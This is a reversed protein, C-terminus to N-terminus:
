PRSLTHEIQRGIWGDMRGAENEKEDGKVKERSCCFPALAASSANDVKILSASPPSQRQIWEVRASFGKQAVGRAVREAEVRKKGLRRCRAAFGLDCLRADIM